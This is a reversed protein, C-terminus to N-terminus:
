GEPMGDPYYVLCEVGAVNYVYQLGSVATQVQNAQATFGYKLPVPVPEHLPLAAGERYLFAEFRSLDAVLRVRILVNFCYSRTQEFEVDLALGDQSTEPLVRLGQKSALSRRLRDMNWGNAAFLVEIQKKTAM